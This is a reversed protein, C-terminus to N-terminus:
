KLFIFLKIACVYFMFFRKGLVVVVVFITKFSFVFLFFLPRISYIFLKLSSYRFLLSYVTTSLLWRATEDPIILYKFQNPIQIQPTQSSSLFFKSRVPLIDAVTLKLLCEDIIMRCVSIIISKM